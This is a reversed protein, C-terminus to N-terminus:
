LPSNTKKNEEVKAKAAKVGAETKADKPHKKLFASIGSRAASASHHKMDEHDSLHFNDIPDEENNPM